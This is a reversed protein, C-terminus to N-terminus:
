VKYKNVIISVGFSLVIIFILRLMQFELTNQNFVIWEFINECKNVPTYEDWDIMQSLYSLVIIILSIIGIMILKSLM